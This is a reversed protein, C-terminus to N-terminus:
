ADDGGEDEDKPLDPALPEGIGDSGAGEQWGIDFRGRREDGYPFPNDIIPHNKLAFDRGLAEAGDGDLGAYEDPVPVPAPRAADPDGRPDIEELFAIPEAKPTGTEDRWIRIPDGGARVIYDGSQPALQKLAEILAERSLADGGMAAIARFTAPQASMGVAELYLTLIEDNEQRDAPRMKRIKLVRRVARTNFGAAKAEAFVMTEIKGLDAKRAQVEEIRELFGRLKEGSPLNSM